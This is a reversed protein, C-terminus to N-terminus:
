SRNRTYIDLLDLVAKALQDQAFTPPMYPHTTEYVKGNPATVVGYILSGTTAEVMLRAIWGNKTSEALPTSLYSRKM